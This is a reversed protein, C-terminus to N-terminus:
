KSKKCGKCTKKATAKKAPAKKAVTKKTSTKKAVKKTTTFRGLADRKQMNNEEKKEQKLTRKQRTLQIYCVAKM